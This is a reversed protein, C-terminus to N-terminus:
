LPDVYLQVNTRLFPRTAGIYFPESRIKSSMAWVHLQKTIRGLLMVLEFVWKQFYYHLRSNYLAALNLYTLSCYSCRLSIPIQCSMVEWLHTKEISLLLMVEIISKKKLVYHHFLYLLCRIDYLRFLWLSCPGRRRHKQVVHGKQINGQICELLM